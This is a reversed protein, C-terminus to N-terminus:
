GSSQRRLWQRVQRPGALRVVRPDDAAMTSYRQRLQDHHRWSWLVVNRVPDTSVANRWQERNGNWLERRLLLRSATRRVLRQIVFWRPHDLWVVTDAAEFGTGGRSRYNGDVVWGGHEREAQDLFAAVESRFEQAPAEQWGSRHNVADLELHPVGLQRALETALTSKGSGSSGVVRVRRGVCSLMGTCPHDLHM